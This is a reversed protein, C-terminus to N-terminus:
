MGLLKFSKSDKAYRIIVEVTKSFEYSLSKIYEYEFTNPTIRMFFLDRFISFLDLALDQNDPIKLFDAWLPGVSKLNKDRAKQFAYQFLKNDINKRLQGQVLVATKYKVVLNLYGPDFTTLLSMEHSFKENIRLHHDIIKSIFVEKDGFHHYFGSKNLNLERSMREVQLGNLGEIAFLEWGSEIWKQLTASEKM